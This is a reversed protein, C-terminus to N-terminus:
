PGERKDIEDKVEKATVPIRRGKWYATEQEVFGQLSGLSMVLFGLEERGVDWICWWQGDALKVGLERAALYIAAVALATPQHTLYLLQPSLLATNLLAITRAALNRSEETVTPTLLGLTQLYTLALPHSLVVRTNYSLTRLIISEAHYLQQRATFYEGDSLTYSSADQPKSLALKSIGGNLPSSDSTLYAYVNLLARTTQPLFSLKATMYLSAASMDQLYSNALTGSGINITSCVKLSNRRFSGGESGVYFRALIIVAQATNEQPLKLLIGAAQTLLAGHYRLSRELEISVGDVQSATSELQDVTALPNTLSTLPSIPAM